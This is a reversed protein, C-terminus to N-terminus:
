TRCFLALLFKHQFSWSNLFCSPSSAPINTCSVLWRIRRVQIHQVYNKESQVFELLFRFHFSCPYNLSYTYTLYRFLCKSSISPLQSWKLFCFAAYIKPIKPLSYCVENKFIRSITRPMWMKNCLYHFGTSNLARFCILTEIKALLM